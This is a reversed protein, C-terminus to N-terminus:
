RSNRAPEPITTAKTIQCNRSRVRSPRNIRAVECFASITYARPVSTASTREATNPIPQPSASAGAATVEQNAATAAGSGCLGTGSLSDAASASPNVIPPMVHDYWGDSDDYAIVVLTNEWDGSNQQLFNIVHVVFAQEDLPDSYGAHGDQYGPAKLFSVAPYNGAMIADEFVHYDYQHNAADTKGIMSVATPRTHKPNATSAYYQFPEHHPIYDAKTTNTITSTTSRACGTTGNANTVTLDFGQTYFGWTVGATNLLNGINTGSMGFVEGTTTSCVDGVPDADGIDSLGGAGDATVSGTGNANNIVGNM